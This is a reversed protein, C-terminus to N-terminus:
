ATPTEKGTKNPEVKTHKQYRYSYINYIKQTQSLKRRHDQQIDNKERM